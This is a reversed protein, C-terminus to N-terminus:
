MYMYFTDKMVTKIQNIMVNETICKTHVYVLILRPKLVMNMSKEGSM